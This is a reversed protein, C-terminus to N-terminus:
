QHSNFKEFNIEGEKFLYKNNHSIEVFIKEKHINIILKKLKDFNKYDINDFAEDLLILQYDNILLPLLVILQKQGSSFNNGNNIIQYELKIGFEDLINQLNYKNINTHLKEIKKRENNTIYQLITVNPLFTKNSGYYTNKRISDINYSNLDIGNIKYNGQCNLYTAIIKMFTSKGCGNEGSLQINKEIILENIKFLPQKKEYEFSLDHFTLKKINNNEMGANTKEEEFNLVFNLLQIDQKIIPVSLILTLFSDLPNIFFTFISIFLIMNGISLHSDFIELSSIYIIIFPILIKVSEILTKHFINLNFMKFNTEFNNKLSQDLNKQVINKLNVQKMELQSYILDITKTSFDLNNKLVNQHKHNINKQFTFSILTILLSVIAIVAFIKPSIWILVATAFLFAIIESSITFIFNAKFSAINQITGLRRLHDTKTIKELQHINCFYLKNFYLNFYHHSIKNEIKKIMLSKFCTASIKMLAIFVFSLTIYNLGYWMASPIVKDLIIKLYFTSVFSLSLSILSLIIILITIKLNSYLLKEKEKKYDLQYSTKTVIIIINQFIKEFSNLTQTVKGFIPDYYYIKNGKIKTIIVYHYVDNQKIISIIPEEINLNKLSNFEGEFSELRLGCDDGINILELVSIGTLGYNANEKLKNLSIWNNYYYKHLSQIVVVGCDLADKQLKIEM